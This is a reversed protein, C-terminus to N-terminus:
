IMYLFCVLGCVELIAYPTSPSIRVHDSHWWTPLGTASWNYLQKCNFGNPYGNHAYIDMAGVGSGPAHWGAPWAENNATPVVVGAARFKDILDQMYGKQPWEVGPVGKVLENEVQLMVVPGGKTIQAKAIQGGIMKVYPTYADVYTQNYTRWPGPVTVGWGPFGGGTTEAYPLCSFRIKKVIGVLFKVLM